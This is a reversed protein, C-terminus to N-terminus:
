LRVIRRTPFLVSLTKLADSVNVEGDTNADGRIFPLGHATDSEVSFAAVLLIAVLALREVLTFM